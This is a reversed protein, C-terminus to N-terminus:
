SLRTRRRFKGEEKEIKEAADKTVPCRAESAPITTTSQRSKLISLNQIKM